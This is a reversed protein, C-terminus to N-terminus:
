GSLRHILEIVSTLDPWVYVSGISKELSLGRYLVVESLKLSMLRGRISPLDISECARLQTLALREADTLPRLLDKKRLSIIAETPRSAM